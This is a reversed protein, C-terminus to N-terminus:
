IIPNFSAPIASEAPRAEVVKSEANDNKKKGGASKEEYVNSAAILPDRLRTRAKAWGFELIKSLDSIKPIAENHSRGDFASATDSDELLFTGTFRNAESM